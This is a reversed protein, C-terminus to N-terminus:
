EWCGPALESDPIPVNVAVVSAGEAVASAKQAEVVVKTGLVGPRSGVERIDVPFGKLRSRGTMHRCIGLKEFQNVPLKGGVGVEGAAVRVLSSLAMVTIADLSEVMEEETGVRNGVGKAISDKVFDVGVECGGFSGLSEVGSDEVSERVVKGQAGRKLVFGGRGAEMFANALLRAKTPTEKESANKTNFPTTVKIGGGSNLRGTKM